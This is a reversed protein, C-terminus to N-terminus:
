ASEPLARLRPLSLLRILSVMAVVFALCCPMASYVFYLMAASIDGALANPDAKGTEKLRSFAKTMSLVYGSVATVAFVAGLVLSIIMTRKWFRRKRFLEASHEPPLLDLQPCERM